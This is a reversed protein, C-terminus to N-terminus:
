IPLIEIWNPGNGVECTQTRNLAGTEQDIQYVEVVATDEGALLLWRSSPDIRFGRPTVAVPIKGIEELMGTDSDIRYGALTNSTRVSAYIWRGDASVQIDAALPDGVLGPAKMDVSQLLSFNGADDYSFVNVTGSSQNVLYAFQGKPHLVLHRPGNGADVKAAPEATRQLAGTNDDFAYRIILEDGLSTVFVFRNDLSSMTCHANPGADTVELIEGAIGDAGIANVGFTGEGYSASFLFRGTRDVSIYAMSGPLPGRGMYSLQCKEYDIAFSLVEPPAGRYGVYLISKDPSTAMAYAGSSTGVDPLMLNDFAGLAGDVGSLKAVGLSNDRSNCVIVLSDVM